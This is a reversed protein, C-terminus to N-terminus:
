QTGLFISRNTDVQTVLHFADILKRYESGTTINYHLGTNNSSNGKRAHV